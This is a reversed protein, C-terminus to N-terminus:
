LWCNMNTYLKDMYFLDRIYRKCHSLRDGILRSRCHALMLRYLPSRATPETSGSSGRQKYLWIYITCAHISKFPYSIKVNRSNSRGIWSVVETERCPKRANLAKAAHSKKSTPSCTSHFSFYTSALSSVRQQEWIDSLNSSM